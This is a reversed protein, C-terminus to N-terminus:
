KKKPAAKKAPAKAAAKKAPAPAKDGGADKLQNVVSNLEKDSNWGYSKGVKEVGGNRLKVRATAENVGLKDALDAVGYKMSGEDKAM